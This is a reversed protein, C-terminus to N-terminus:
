IAVSSELISASLAEMDLAIALTAVVAAEHRNPDRLVQAAATARPVRM